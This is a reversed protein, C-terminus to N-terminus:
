VFKIKKAALLAMKLLLWGHTFRSINTKGYTREKYKVPIDLIKLNLRSAGFLLDFDGFPDSDGFRKRNKAILLYDKRFLAKTGCLTDKIRQGLIYSFILSFLKNGLYNLSRMAQKEMPYILRSGNAFEAHGESLAQYFKSLDKPDVALDADLIILIDNKTKDFGLRVADAKGTGKQKYVFFNINGKYRALGEKITKFTSDRSHGEVFIVETKTGLRPIKNLINRINGAENKAPVIIAVSYNKPAPKIRFVQYTTLCFFNILPFQAVYRNILESIPGLSIPLLLRKGRCIEEFGELKFLNTIDDSSLWNPEKQEKKRFNLFSALDLIPKWLFNFYVVVIRNESSSKRRLTKIHNQADRVYALTNPLLIYDKNLGRPTLNKFLKDLDKKYYDSFISM